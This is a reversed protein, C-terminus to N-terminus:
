PLGHIVISGTNNFGRMIEITRSSISNLVGRKQESTLQNFIWTRQPIGRSLENIGREEVSIDKESILVNTSEYQDNRKQFLEAIISANSGSHSFVLGPDGSRDVWWTQSPEIPPPIPTAM